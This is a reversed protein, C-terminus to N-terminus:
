KRNLTGEPLTPALAPPGEPFPQTHSSTLSGPAGSGVWSPVETKALTRRVSVSRQLALRVGECMRALIAATTVGWVRAAAARLARASASILALAPAALPTGDELCPAVALAGLGAVAPELDAGEVDRMAADEDGTEM